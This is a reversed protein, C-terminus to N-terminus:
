VGGGFASVIGEMLDHRTLTLTEEHGHCRALILIGGRADVSADWREVAMNCALCVVSVAPRLHRPIEDLNLKVSAQSNPVGAKPNSM